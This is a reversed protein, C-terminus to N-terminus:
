NDEGFLQKWGPYFLAGVFRLHELAQDKTMDRRVCDFLMHVYAGSLTKWHEDPIDRHMKGAKRRTEAYAKNGATEMRILEEEFHEYKTGASCCLLLKLGDFHDYIFGTWFAAWDDNFPDYDAAEDLQKEMPATMKQFDDLTDKVLYGFMDEKGHFHKYLGATTIGVEASVRNLSAKEYGRELFEKRMARIIRDHTATKDRPM